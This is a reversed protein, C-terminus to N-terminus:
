GKVRGKQHYQHRFRHIQLTRIFTEHQWFSLWWHQAAFALLDSFGVAVKPRPPDTRRDTISQEQLTKEQVWPLIEKCYLIIEAM